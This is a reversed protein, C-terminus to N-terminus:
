LALGPGMCRYMSLDQLLSFTVFTKREEDKALFLTVLELSTAWYPAFPM